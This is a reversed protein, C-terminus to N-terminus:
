DIAESSEPAEGSESAFIEVDVRSLAVPYTEGISSGGNGKIEARLDEGEGYVFVQLGVDTPITMPIWVGDSVRLEAEFRVGLQVDAECAEDGTWQYRSCWHTQDSVLRANRMYFGGPLLGKDGGSLTGLALDVSRIALGGDEAAVLAITGTPAAVPVRALEDSYAIELSIDSATAHVQLEPDEYTLQERVSVDSSDGGTLAVACAVAVLPLCLLLLQFRKM